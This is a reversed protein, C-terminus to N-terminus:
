AKKLRLSFAEKTPTEDLFIYSQAFKANTIRSLKGINEDKEHRRDVFIMDMNHIIKMLNKTSKKLSLFRDGMFSVFGKIHPSLTTFAELDIVMKNYVYTSSLSYHGPNHRLPHHTELPLDLFLSEYGEEYAKQLWQKSQRAYLSFSLGVQKPLKGLLMSTRRVDIGLSPVIIVIKAQGKALSFPPPIDKEDAEDLEQQSREDVSETITVHLPQHAYDYYPVSDSLMYLVMLFLMIFIVYAKVIHKQWHHLAFQMVALSLRKAPPGLKTVILNWVPRLLRIIPALWKGFMAAVSKIPNVIKQIIGGM